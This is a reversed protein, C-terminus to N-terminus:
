LEALNSSTLDDLYGKELALAVLHTVNKANFKIMLNKRYSKLTHTNMEVKVSIEDSTFGKSLLQIIQKEQNSLTITKEGKVGIIKKALTNYVDLSFYNNGGIITNIATAIENPHTGKLLYGKAGVNLAEQIYAERNYQSLILVKVSPHNKSIYETAAIGDMLPMYVDMLVLDVKNLPLLELVEKGNGVAGIVNFGRELLSEELTACLTGSDEAIIINPISNKDMSM